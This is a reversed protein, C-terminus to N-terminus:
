FSGVSGVRFREIGLIALGTLVMLIASAAMARGFNQPGPRGLLRYIAVPLTPIDPRVIFLTAGFEGLSIAFAFGAAVSRPGPWSPSTSRAGCARRRRASRDVGGRPPTPRDVAAGAAHDAGRVPDRGARARDPHAVVLRPPRAAAHDLAILFGFGVTVASVGLPLSLFTDLGRSRRRARARVGGCGGVVVAIVTAIAAFRLSNGIADVPSVFLTSGAHM